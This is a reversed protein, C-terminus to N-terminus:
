KPQERQELKSCRPPGSVIAAQRDREDVSVGESKVEVAQQARLAGEHASYLM